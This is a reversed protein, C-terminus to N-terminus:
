ALLKNGSDDYFYLDFITDYTFLLATPCTSINGSQLAGDIVAEYGCVSDNNCVVLLENNWNGYYIENEGETLKEYRDFKYENEGVISFVAAIFNDRYSGEEMCLLLLKDYSPLRNNDSASEAIFSDIVTLENSTKTDDKIMQLMETENHLIGTNEIITLVIGIVSVLIILGLVLIVNQKVTRNKM